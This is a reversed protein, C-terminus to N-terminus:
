VLTPFRNFCEKLGIYSYRTGNIEVRYQLYFWIGISLLVFLTGGM